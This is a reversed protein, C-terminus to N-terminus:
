FYQGVGFVFGRSADKTIGYGYDIRFIANFIRKHIFRLGVGPYIKINESKLFDSFDGGPNRWTGADIFVNSQLVFWKKEFLTYRYETNVVISGTGRDVLFGVGRLNTNNDVVFPAFPTDSNSSLGFRFRNAWNGKYGVRKFYLLDNWFILYVDQFDNETAVYQLYFINKFGNLLQYYYDLSNYVHILKLLKKDLELNTPIEPNTLGNLYDYKEAFFNVGFQLSHKFNIEYLGLVETSVNNYKYNASGEDFYLPEESTWNQFNVSIGLKRSFLYPAAVNIAYSNFGNNQYFGGLIINRGLFNYDNLGIRYAFKRNVTSWFSFEPIITFNEQINFFVNYLSNEAYFVQYSAHSIAPLRKLRIIDKELITSDLVNGNKTELIKIIFNIKTKKAGRIKVDYVIKNQSYANSLIMFLIFFLVLKFKIM